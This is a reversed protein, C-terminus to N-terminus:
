KKWKDRHAIHVHGEDRDRRKECSAIRTWAEEETGRSEKYEKYLYLLIEFSGRSVEINIGPVIVTTVQILFIINYSKM